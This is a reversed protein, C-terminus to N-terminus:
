VKFRTCTTYKLGAENAWLWYSLLSIKVVSVRIGSEGRLWRACVQTCERVNFTGRWVSAVAHRICLLSERCQGGTPPGNFIIEPHQLLFSACPRTLNHNGHLSHHRHSCFNFCHFIPLRLLSCYFLSLLSVPLLVIFLLLHTFHHHRYLPMGRCNATCLITSQPGNLKLCNFITHLLSCQTALANVFFYIHSLQKLEYAGPTICHFKPKRM